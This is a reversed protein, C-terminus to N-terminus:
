SIRKNNASIILRRYTLYQDKKIQNCELMNMYDHLLENANDLPLSLIMDILQQYLNKDKTEYYQDMYDMIVEGIYSDSREVAEYNIVRLDDLLTRMNPDYPKFEGYYFLMSKEVFDDTFALKYAEKKYNDKALNYALNIHMIGSNLLVLYEEFYMRYDELDEKKSFDANEPILSIGEKMKAIRSINNLRDCIRKSIIKEKSYNDFAFTITNNEDENGFNGIIDDIVFEPEYLFQNYFLNECLVLFALMNFANKNGKALEQYCDYIRSAYSILTIYADEM